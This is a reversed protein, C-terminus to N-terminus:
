IVPYCVTETPLITAIFRDLEAESPFQSVHQVLYKVVQIVSFMM